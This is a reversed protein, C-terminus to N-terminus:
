GEPFAWSRFLEGCDVKKKREPTRHTEASMDLPRADGAIKPAIENQRDNGSRLRQRGIRVSDGGRAITPNGVGQSIM